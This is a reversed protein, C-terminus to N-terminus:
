CNTSWLFKYQTWLARYWTDYEFLYSQVPEFDFSWPWIRTSKSNLTFTSSFLRNIILFYPRRGLQSSNRGTWQQLLERMQWTSIGPDGFVVDYQQSRAKFRPTLLINGLHSRSSKRLLHMMGGSGEMHFDSCCWDGVWYYFQQVTKNNIDHTDCKSASIAIEQSHRSQRHSM